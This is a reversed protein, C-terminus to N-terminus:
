KFNPNPNYGHWCIDNIKNKQTIIKQKRHYYYNLKQFTINLRKYIIAMHMDERYIIRKVKLLEKYIPLILKSNIVVFGGAVFDPFIDLPYISKPLYILSNINRTVKTKSYFFGSVKSKNIYINIYLFLIPINPYIDDDIKLIYDCCLNYVISYKYINATLITLNYYSNIIDLGLIDNKNEIKIKSLNGKTAIVFLYNCSLHLCIKIWSKKIRNRKYTNNSSSFIFLIVKYYSKLTSVISYNYIFLEKITYLKNIEKNM